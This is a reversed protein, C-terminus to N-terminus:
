VLLVWVTRELLHMGLDDSGSFHMRLKVIEVMDQLSYGEKYLKYEPSYAPTKYLLFSGERKGISTKNGCGNKTTYIM